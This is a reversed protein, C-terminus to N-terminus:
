ARVQEPQRLLNDTAPCFFQASRNDSTKPNSPMVMYDSCYKESAERLARAMKLYGGYGKKSHMLEYWDAVPAALKLPMKDSWIGTRIQIIGGELYEIEIHDAAM